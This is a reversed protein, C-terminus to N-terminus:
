PRLIVLLKNSAGNIHAYSQMPRELQGYYLSAFINAYVNKMNNFAGMHNGLIDTALAFYELGPIVDYNKKLGLNRTNSPNSTQMSARRSPTAMENPSPYGSHSAHAGMNPPSSQAPSAPVANRPSGHPLPDPVNHLADPIRDRSLCVKGLALVTLILASHVSRNPMGPKTPQPTSPTESGDPAPSRKRKMGTSEANGVAFSTRVSYKSSRTQTPVMSELFQKVWNDLVRPQIIPHMNLINEKFSEVYTWIKQESFDPNGDTTLPGGKFEVLDPPSLGGLQGYDPAPSPSAMESNDDQPDLTGHDPIDRPPLTLPSDEGRGYLILAGRNQEVMIPFQEPPGNYCAALHHRTLQRIGPWDLLLGALTTHNHPIAEQGPPVPHGPESEVQDEPETQGPEGPGFHNPPLVPQMTTDSPATETASAAQERSTESLSYQESTTNSITQPSRTTAKHDDDGAPDHKVAVEGASRYLSELKILRGNM